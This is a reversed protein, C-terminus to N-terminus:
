FRGVNLRDQLERLSDWDSDAAMQAQQPWTSPDSLKYKPGQSDLITRLQVVTASALTAWTSINHEVLLESIKPGIGEIAKLDNLKYAKIIGMKIFLKEAKSESGDSKQFKVLNDWQRSHALKAQEVWESPDIIKYKDGYKDLVTRLGTTNLQSLSFLNNINNEKLIQEMKPGIGEIIQLNDMSVTAYKDIDVEDKMPIPAAAATGIPTNSLHSAAALKAAEDQQRRLDRLESHSTHLNNKAIRLESELTSKGETCEKYQNNLKNYNARSAGLTDELGRFKKIWKGWILWGLTLGLLFPLLWALWWYNCFDTFINLTM